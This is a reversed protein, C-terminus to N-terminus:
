RRRRREHSSDYSDSVYEDYKSMLKDLESEARMVDARPLDHPRGNRELFNYAIMFTTDDFSTFYKNNIAEICAETSPYTSPKIEKFIQDFVEVCIEHQRQFDSSVTQVPFVRLYARLWNTESNYWEYVSNLDTDMDYIEREWSFSVYSSDVIRDIESPTLNLNYKKNFREIIKRRKPVSKTLGTLSPKISTKKGSSRNYASNKYPDNGGVSQKYYSNWNDQTNGKNKGGGLLKSIIWGIVFIPSFMLLLVFLGIAIGGIGPLVSSFISFLIVAGFIKDIKGEIARYIRPNSKGFLNYWILFMVFFGM